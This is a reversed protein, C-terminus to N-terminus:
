ERPLKYGIFLAAKQIDAQTWSSKNLLEYDDQIPLNANTDRFLQQVMAYRIVLADHRMRAERFGAHTSMCALTGAIFAYKM